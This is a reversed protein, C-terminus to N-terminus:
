ESLLQRLVQRGVPAMGMGRTAEMFAAWEETAYVKAQGAEMAALSPYEVTVYVMNTGAGGIESLLVRRKSEIGLESSKAFVKKLEAIFGMPNGNVNVAYTDIIPGAEQAQATQAISGACFLAAALIAASLGLKM